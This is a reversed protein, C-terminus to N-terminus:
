RRYRLDLGRSELPVLDVLHEGTVDHRVWTKGFGEAEVREAFWPDDTLGSAGTFWCHGWRVRDLVERRVLLFGATNWHERVDAGEPFLPRELDGRLTQFVPPGDLCYAPVNGGVVSRDVELLRDLCDGPVRLDSDLFLVHTCDPDRLATEVVLNRGTCIRFLRSRSTIDAHTDIGFYSWTGDLRNVHRLLDEHVGYAAADGGIYVECAATFHLGYGGARARVLLEEASDLWATRHEPRLPPYPPVTTGCYVTATV